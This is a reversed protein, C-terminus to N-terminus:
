LTSEIDKKLWEKFERIARVFDPTNLEPFNDNIYTVLDTLLQYMVPLQYRRDTVKALASQLKALADAHIPTFQEPPMNAITGIKELIKKALNKPSLREYDDNRHQSRLSDWEEKKVWNLITQATPKNHFHKAIELASLGDQVYMKKATNIVKSKYGQM